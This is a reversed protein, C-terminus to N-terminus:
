SPAPSRGHSLRSDLARASEGAIDEGLDVM